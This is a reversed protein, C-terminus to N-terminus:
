YCRVIFLQCGFWGIGIQSKIRRCFGKLMVPDFLTQCDFFYLYRFLHLKMDGVIEKIENLWKNAVVSMLEPM